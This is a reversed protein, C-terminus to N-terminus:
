SKRNVDGRSVLVQHELQASPLALTNDNDKTVHSTLRVM